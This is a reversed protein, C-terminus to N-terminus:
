EQDERFEGEIVNDDSEITEFWDGPISHALSSVHEQVVHPPCLEVFLYSGLWVVAM